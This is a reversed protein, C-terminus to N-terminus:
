LHLKGTNMWYPNLVISQPLMLLIFPYVTGIMLSVNVIFTLDAHNFVYIFNHGRITVPTFFISPNIDILRHFIQYVLIM